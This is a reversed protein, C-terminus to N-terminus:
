PTHATTAPVQSIVLQLPADWLSQPAEGGQLLQSQVRVLERARQARAHGLERLKCHQSHGKGEQGIQCLLVEQHSPTYQSQPQINATGQAVILERTIKGRAQGAECLQLLQCEVVVQKAARKWRQLETVSM